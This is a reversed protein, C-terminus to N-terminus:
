RLPAALVLSRCLCTLQAAEPAPLTCTFWPAALSVYSGIIEHFHNNEEEWHLTRPCSNWSYVPFSAYLEDYQPHLADWLSQPVPDGNKAADAHIYKFPWRCSDGWCTQLM